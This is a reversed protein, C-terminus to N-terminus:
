GKNVFDPGRGVFKTTDTFPNAWGSPLIVKSGEYLKYNTFTIPKSAGSLDITGRYLYLYAVTGMGLVTTRDNALRLTGQAVADNDFTINASGSAELTTIQRQITCSGGMLRASTTVHTGTTELTLTGGIQVVDDSDVSDACILTGRTIVIEDHKADYYEILGNGVPAILVKAHKSTVAGASMRTRTGAWRVEVIGAGGQDATFQLNVTAFDGSFEPGLVLKALDNAITAGSAFRTAFKTILVTDAAAPTASLASSLVVNDTTNTVVAM